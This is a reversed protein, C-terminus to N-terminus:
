RKNFEAKLCSFMLDIHSEIDDIEPNWRNSATRHRSWRQYVKGDIAQNSLAGIPKGDTRRLAPHFYIMDLQSTPYHPPILIAVDANKVNYGGPIELSKIIVWNLNNHRIVEVENNLSNLYEKDSQPLISIDNKLFGETCDLAEYVFREVGCETLDIKEGSEIVKKGGKIFMRLRHKNPDKGVLLLVDEKTVTDKDTEYKNGNIKLLYKYTIVPKVGKCFCDELDLTEQIYPRIIFREIGCETLNIKVQPGVDIKGNKTKMKIFHTDSSTGILEHLQNGIIVQDKTSFESENIHFVYEFAIEPKVGSKYCEKLNVKKISRKM